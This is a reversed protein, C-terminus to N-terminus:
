WRTSFSERFKPRIKTWKRQFQLVTAGAPPRTCPCPQRNVGERCAAVSLMGGFRGVRAALRCSGSGPPTHAATLNPIRCRRGGPHTDPREKFVSSRSGFALAPPEPRVDRHRVDFCHLLPLDRLSREKSRTREAQQRGTVDLRDRGARQNKASTRRTRRLLRSPSNSGPEPRVSAAHKICALRVPDMRHCCRHLGLPSRTLLVHAVQGSSQSLVPFGTSIVSAGM